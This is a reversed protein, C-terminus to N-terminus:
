EEQFMMYIYIYIYIIKVFVAAIYFCSASHAGAGHAILLTQELSCVCYCAYCSFYHTLEGSTVMVVYLLIRLGTM